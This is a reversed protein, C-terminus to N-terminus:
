ADAPRGRETILDMVQRAADGAPIGMSRALDIFHKPDRPGNDRESELVVSTKEPGDLPREIPREDRGLRVGHRRPDM